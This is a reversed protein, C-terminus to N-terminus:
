SIKTFKVGFSEWALLSVLDQELLILEERLGEVKFLKAWGIKAQDLKLRKLSGDHNFEPKADLCDIQRPIILWYLRQTLRQQDLLCIAKSFLQKVKLLQLKQWLRDSILPVPQPIFDPYVQGSEVLCFGPNPDIFQLQQHRLHEPPAIATLGKLRVVGALKPDQELYYYEKM